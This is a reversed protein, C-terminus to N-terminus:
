GVPCSVDELEDSNTLLVVVTDRHGANRIKEREFSLLKQGTTVTDGVDVFARFGEGNMSVTDIGVHILVEMGNAALGIAHRTEPLTVVVADFPACVIGESPEIGVGEGLVGSAFTEDPIRERPIITGPTPQYLEGESCHLIMAPQGAESAADQAARATMHAIPVFDEPPTDHYIVRGIKEPYEWWVVLTLLFATGASILLEVCYLPIDNIALLGPIGTVGYANAGLHTASAFMAGAAGGAVGCVFPKMFRFNVGFIAPETIGFSASFAAPLALSKLRRSRSRVAVALCAGFQAFNAASAIPMWTNLQDPGALMGAEIVNYMHHLGMVVTWPYLAGLVFAGAGRGATVIEEAAYLVISEFGSFVPGIVTFTVFATILVTLLPTIFLDFMEPVIKRLWREVRSMLWVAIIEPIVHGQYGVQPVNFFLLHWVPISATTGVSWANLLDTHIMLLGIVAALFPNGGFVRAASIAVLVPLFSFATNSVMDLFSYWDTRAFSPLAGGLAQLIGMMLGSAVIAPLIPIFVDGPIKILRRWLPMRSVAAAAVEDSSAASLGTVALLAEYVHTVAGPGIVVQIQGSSEFLGRVGEVAEIADADVKRSDAVIFRLRTACHAASVINERGGLHSVIEEACRRYDFSM